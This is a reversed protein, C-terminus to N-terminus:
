VINPWKKLIFLSAKTMEVPAFRLPSIEIKWIFSIEGSREARHFIPDRKPRFSVLMPLKIFPKAETALALTEGLDM